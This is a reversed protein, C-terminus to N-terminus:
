NLWFPNNHTNIEGYNKYEQWFRKSKVPNEQPIYIKKWDDKPM